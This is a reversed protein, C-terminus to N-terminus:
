SSTESKINQFGHNTFIGIVNCVHRLKSACPIHELTRSHFRALSAELYTVIKGKVVGECWVQGKIAEFLMGMRKSKEFM